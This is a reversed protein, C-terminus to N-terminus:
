RVRHPGASSVYAAYVKKPVALRWAEIVLERMEDADIAAMRAVVWNFRMDSERPLQFKDPEAAVLAAREEKPFGFGMLTEDHSFAVYVISGVRFKVRDRILHESSRPLTSALRRVDEVTIVGGRYHTRASAAEPRRRGPAPTGAVRDKGAVRTFLAIADAVPLVDLSLAPTADLGTLSRRSTILVHCGASGPLLPRIQAESVANDLM